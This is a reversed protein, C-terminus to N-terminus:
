LCVPCLNLNDLRREEEVNERDIFVHRLAFDYVSQVFLRYNDSLVVLYSPQATGIYYFIDRSYFILAGSIDQEVLKKQLHHIRNLLKM